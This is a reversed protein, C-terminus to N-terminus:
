NYNKLIDVITDYDPEENLEVGVIDKIFNIGSSYTINNHKLKLRNKEEEVFVFGKDTTTFYFRNEM